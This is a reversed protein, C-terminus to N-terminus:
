DSDPSLLQRVTEGISGAASGLIFGIKEFHHDVARANRTVTETDNTFLQTGEGAVYAPLNGTAQELLAAGGMGLLGAATGAAAIYATNFKDSGLYAADDLEEEVVGVRHMYGQAVRDVQWQEVPNASLYDASGGYRPSDLSM